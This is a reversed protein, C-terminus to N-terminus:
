KQYELLLGCEKIAPLDAFIKSELVTVFFPKNEIMATMRSRCKGRVGDSLLPTQPLIDLFFVQFKAGPCSWYCTMRFAKRPFPLGVDLSLM